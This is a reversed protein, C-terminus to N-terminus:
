PGSTIQSVGRSIPRVVSGETLTVIECKFSRIYHIVSSCKPIFSEQSKELIEGPLFFVSQKNLFTLKNQMQLKSNDDVKLIM